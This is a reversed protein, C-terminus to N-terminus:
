NFINMSYKGILAQIDMGRVSKVEKYTWEKFDLMLGVTDNMWPDDEIYKQPTDVDIGDYFIRELSRCPPEVKYFNGGNGM